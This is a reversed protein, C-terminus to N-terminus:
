RPPKPVVVDGERADDVRPQLALSDPRQRAHEGAREFDAAALPERHLPQGVAEVVEAVRFARRRRLWPLEGAEVVRDREDGPAAVQDPPPNTDLDRRLRPAQRCGDPGIALRDRREGDRPDLDLPATGEIADLEVPGQQGREDRGAALLAASHRERQNRLLHDLRHEGDLVPAEVIVGADVRDPDDPGDDRVDPAVPRVQNAAAREGLLEHLVEEQRRLFRVPALELLLKQRHDELRAGRLVIDELQVEVVHVETLAAGVGNM